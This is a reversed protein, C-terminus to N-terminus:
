AISVVAAEPLGRGLSNLYTGRSAFFARGSARGAVRLRDLDEGSFQPGIIERPIPVTLTRSANRIPEQERAAEMVASILARGLDVATRPRRGSESAEVDRRLRIGWTPRTPFPADFLWVPFNSLLGGDMLYHPSGDRRLVIPEFWYPISMSMVVADIVPFDDSRIPRDDGDTYEELADPLVIMRAATLDSVIIRLRHRVRSTAEDPAATRAFDGFSPRGIGMPSDRFQEELWERLHASRILGRNSWGAAIRALLGGARWPFLKCHDTRLLVESIHSPPYGAALLAAVLAGGSSGAIQGWRTIGAENAAELAGAFAICRLGGGDLVLDAEDTLLVPPAFWPPREDVVDAHVPRETPPPPLEVTHSIPQEGGDAYRVTAHLTFSAWCHLELAFGSDRDVIDRVPNPFSRDLTYTVREVTALEAPDGSVKFRCTWEHLGAVGVYNAAQTLRVV